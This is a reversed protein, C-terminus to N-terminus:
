LRPTPGKQETSPSFVFFYSVGRIVYWQMTWWSARHPFTSPISWITVVTMRSRPRFWRWSNKRSIASAHSLLLLTSSLSSKEHLSFSFDQRFQSMVSCRECSFSFSCPRLCTMVCRLSSRQIHWTLCSSRAWKGTQWLMEAENGPVKEHPWSAVLSLRNIFSNSRRLRAKGIRGASADRSYGLVKLHLEYLKMTITTQSCLELISCDMVKM